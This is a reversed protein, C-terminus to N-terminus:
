RLKGMAAIQALRVREHRGAMEEADRILRANKRVIADDPFRGVARCERYHVYARLNRGSL